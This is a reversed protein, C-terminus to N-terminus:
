NTLLHDRLRKIHLSYDSDSDKQYHIFEEYDKLQLEDTNNASVIIRNTPIYIALEGEKGSIFCEMLRNQFSRDLAKLITTKGSNNYGYIISVDKSLDVKQKKIVGTEPIQIQM